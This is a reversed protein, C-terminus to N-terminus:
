LFSISEEATRTKYVNNYKKSFHDYAGSQKEVTEFVGFVTSGSGSMMAKQAGFENEMTQIIEDMEPVLVLSKNYLGNTMHQFLGRKDGACISRVAKLTREGSTLDNRDLMKFLTATSIGEDPKVIVLFLDIHPLDMFEDGIGFAKKTGGVLCFPVDAGLKGALDHIERDSLPYGYIKNLGVLVAAADTSGGAMGAQMPIEKHLKIHCGKCSGKKQYFAEAARVAINEAMPIDSINSSLTIKGSDNKEINITDYIDISQMVTLLDHYGNKRKRSVELSLNIKARAKMLVSM